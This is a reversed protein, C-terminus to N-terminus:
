FGLEEGIIIVSIDSSLPQKHLISTITCIRSAGQCDSCQGTTVCPNPRNLRKNNLPAALLRIREQAAAINPVIKNAGTVVFVKGPGFTMAAVRNGAGDVNVLEGNLTLANTSTLFIDCTLQQRRIALSEEPSLGPKNHNLLHQGREELAAILGIEQLTWSGAVGVTASLPIAELLEAVAPAATAHYCAKFRNAQLASVTRLSLTENHWPQFPNM